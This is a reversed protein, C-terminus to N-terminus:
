CPQWSIDVVELLRDGSRHLVGIGPLIQFGEQPHGPMSLILYILNMTNKELVSKGPIDAIWIDVLEEKECKKEGEDWGDQIKSHKM